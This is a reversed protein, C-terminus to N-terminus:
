PDKGETSEILEQKAPVAETAVCELFSKFPLELYRFKAESTGPDFPVVFYTLVSYNIDVTSM